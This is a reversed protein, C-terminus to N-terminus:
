ADQSSGTEQLMLSLVMLNDDQGTRQFAQHQRQMLIKLSIPKNGGAQLSSRITIGAVDGTQMRPTFILESEELLQGAKSAKIQRLRIGIRIMSRIEREQLM